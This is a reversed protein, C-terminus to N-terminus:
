SSTVNKHTESQSVKRLQELEPILAEMNGITDPGIFHEIQEVLRLENESRNVLCFFRQLVEHRHLLYSGLGWGKETPTVIGYPEFSVFGQERLKAVMKSASSPKVNLRAALANIRVYGPNGGCRCIMELYDEMAPSVEHPGILDYGKLTYFNSRERSDAM